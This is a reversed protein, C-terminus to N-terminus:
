DYILKRYVDKMCEECYIKDNIEFCFDDQIHEECKCCKPRHLLWQQEERDQMEADRIPNDTRM